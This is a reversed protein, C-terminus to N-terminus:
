AGGGGGSAAEQPAAGGEVDPPLIGGAVAAAALRALAAPAAPADLSLDALRERARRFGEAVQAASILPGKGAEQATRALHLLLAGAATEAAESPAGDVARQLIRLVVEHGFHPAALERVARAAEDLGGGGFYERVAAQPSLLPFTCPELLARGGRWM